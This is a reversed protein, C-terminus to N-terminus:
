ASSFIVLWMCVSVCTELMTIKQESKRLSAKSLDFFSWSKQMNILKVIHAKM